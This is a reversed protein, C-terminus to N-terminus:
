KDAKTKAQATGPMLDLISSLDSSTLEQATPFTIVQTAATFGSYNGTFQPYLEPYNGNIETLELARYVGNMDELLPEGYNDVASSGPITAQFLVYRNLALQAAMAIELSLMMEVFEDLTYNYQDCAYEYEVQTIEVQYQANKLATTKEMLTDEEYPLKVLQQSMLRTYEEAIQEILTKQRNVSDNLSNGYRIAKPATDINPDYDILAQLQELLHTLYEQGEIIEEELVSLENDIFDSLAQKAEKLQQKADNLNTNATALNQLIEQESAMIEKLKALVAPTDTSTVAPKATVYNSAPIGKLISEDFTFHSHRSKNANQADDFAQEYRKKASLYNNEALQKLITLEMLGKDQQTAGPNNAMYKELATSAADYKAEAVQYTFNLEYLEANEEEAIVSTLYAHVDEDHMLFTRYESLRVDDQASYGHQSERYIVTEPILMLTNVVVEKETNEYMYLFYRDAMPIFDAKENPQSPTLSYKNPLFDYSEPVEADDCVCTPPPLEPGNILSNTPTVTYLLQALLLPQSPQSLLGAEADPNCVQNSADVGMIFVQYTNGRKLPSNNIDVAPDATGVGWVAEWANQFADVMTTGFSQSLVSYPLSNGLGIYNDKFAANNAGANVSPDFDAFIGDVQLITHYSYPNQKPDTGAPIGAADTGIKEGYWEKFYTPSHKQYWIAKANAEIIPSSLDPEVTAEGPKDLNIRKLRLEIEKKLQDILSDKDTSTQWKDEIFKQLDELLATFTQKAYLKETLYVLGLQELDWFQVTQDKISTGTEAEWQRRYLKELRSTRNSKQEADLSNDAELTSVQGQYGSEYKLWYNYQATVILNIQADLDRQLAERDPYGNPNEPTALGKDNIWTIIGKSLGVGQYYNNIDSLAEQTLYLAKYAEPLVPKPKGDEAQPVPIEKYQGTVLTNATEWNFGAVDKEEVFIVKYMSLGCQDRYADFSVDITRGMQPQSVTAPSAILILLLNKLTILSAYVQQIAKELAEIKVTDQTPADALVAALAIKINEVDDILQTVLPLALETKDLKEEPYKRSEEVLSNGLGAAEALNLLFKKIDEKLAESKQLEPTNEYHELQSNLVKLKKVETFIKHLVPNQGGPDTATLDYNTVKNIFRESSELALMERYATEYIGADTNETDMAAAVDQTDTTVQSNIAVLQGNVSGEMTKLNANLTSADNSVKTAQTQAGEVTTRLSVLSTTEARNATKQALESTKKVKEYMQSGNDAATAIAMMAAVNGSLQSLATAANQISVATKSVKQKTLTADTVAQKSATLLNDSNQKDNVVAHYQDQVSNAKTKEKALETKAKDTAGHAYYLSTKASQSKNVQALEEQDLLTNAQKLAASLEQYYTTNM